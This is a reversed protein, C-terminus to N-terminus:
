PPYDVNDVNVGVFIIRLHFKLRVAISALNEDVDRARKFIEM